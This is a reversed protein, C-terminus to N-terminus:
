ARLIRTTNLNLLCLPRVSASRLTPTRNRANRPGKEWRCSVLRRMKWRTAGVSGRGFTISVTMFSLGKKQQSKRLLVFPSSHTRSTFGPQVHVIDAPRLNIPRPNRQSQKCLIRVDWGLVGTSGGLSKKCVQLGPCFRRPPKSALTLFKYIYELLIYM